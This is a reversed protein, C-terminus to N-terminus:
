CLLLLPNFIEQMNYVSEVVLCTWFTLTSLSEHGSTKKSMNAVSGHIRTEEEGCHSWNSTLLNFATSAVISKTFFTLGIERWICFVRRRGKDQKSPFFEPQPKYHPLFQMHHYVPGPNGKRALYVICNM